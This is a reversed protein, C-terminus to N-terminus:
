IELQQTFLVFLHPILNSRIQNYKEGIKRRFYSLAVNITAQSFGQGGGRLSLEALTVEFHGIPYAFNIELVMLFNICFNPSGHVNYGFRSLKFTKM